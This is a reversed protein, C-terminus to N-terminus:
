TKRSKEPKALRRREPTKTKRSRAKGPRNEKQQWTPYDRENAQATRRQRVQTASLPHSRNDLMLWAPPTMLALRTARHARQRATAFCHAARATTGAAAYGPRRFVAIPMLRFVDQWRHWRDIQQLNDAGMLWVFHAGRMRTKLATLVDFTTGTGLEVELATVYVRPRKRLLSRALRLRNALPAMDVPSKLPNQPSVLWWIEDLRLRKLAYLSIALHGEHPPNFSGGLLGIRRGAVAPGSLHTPYVM